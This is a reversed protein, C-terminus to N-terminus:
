MYHTMAEALWEENTSIFQEKLRTKLLDRIADRDVLDTDALVEICAMDHRAKGFQFEWTIQTAAGISLGPTDFLMGDGEIVFTRFEEVSMIGADLLSDAIVEAENVTGGGATTLFVFGRFSTDRRGEALDDITENEASPIHCSVALFKALRARAQGRLEEDHLAAGLVTTPKMPYCYAARQGLSTMCVFAFLMVYVIWVLIADVFGYTTAPTGFPFSMSTTTREVFEDPFKLYIQLKIGEFFFAVGIVGTFIVVLVIAFVGCGKWGHMYAGMVTRYQHGTVFASPRAIATTTASVLVMVALLLCVTLFCIGLTWNMNYQNVLSLTKAKQGTWWMGYGNYVKLNGVSRWGLLTTGDDAYKQFRADTLQLEDYTVSSHFTIALALVLASVISMNQMLKDIQSWSPPESGSDLFHYFLNVIPIQYGMSNYTNAWNKQLKAGENQQLM